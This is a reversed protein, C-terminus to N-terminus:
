AVFDIKWYAHADGVNDLTGTFIWLARDQLKHLQRQMMVAIHRLATICSQSQRTFLGLQTM